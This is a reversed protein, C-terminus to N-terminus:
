KDCSLAAEGVLLAHLSIFAVNNKQIVKLCNALRRWAEGNGKSNSDYEDNNLWFTQLTSGHIYTRVNAVKSKYILIFIKDREFM